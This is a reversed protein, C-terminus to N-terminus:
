GRVFISSGAACIGAPLTEARLSVRVMRGRVKTSRAFSYSGNAKSKTTGIRKSGRWIIVTRNAVCARHGSSLRGGLKRASLKRLALRTSFRNKGAHGGGRAAPPSTTSATWSVTGTDCAATKSTARNYFRFTGSASQAAPFTGRFSIADYYKYDFANGVIPAGDWYGVAERGTFQCTNGAANDVTWSTVITGDQSVTFTVQAGDAAHGTYTAGAVPDAAAPWAAVGCVAVVLM